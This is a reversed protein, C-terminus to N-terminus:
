GLRDQLAQRAVERDDFHIKTTGLIQYDEHGKGAIVVTDGSNAERIAAEIAQRRDGEVITPVSQPDFGAVIDTLIGQPDETRPNDSTVIVQDSWEAALRGMQPRKTRDRDGGCGFVCILRGQVTPRVARLLNELGDPTHAYDVIVTLDAGAVQVMEMRGPVGPFGPLLDQIVQPEIGVQLVAGVAAMLNALNFAGAMPIQVWIEGKPTHLQAQIRDSGLEVAEPWLDAPAEADFSLSYSWPSLEAGEARLQQCLRRGGPDDQNIIGRGQLYEPSFLTAKAQWYDEMTPHFDLHDQTLNTWVAVAFQCGWVRQQALAHSSVEMVVQDCGAGRIQDLTRQLDVAFPTTHHAMIQTQGPWRSYLTGILGTSRGAGNLLYEVLHTTTTKGNTGTVGIMSLDRGPFGYFATVLQACAKSVQDMPLCIVPDVEASVETQQGAAESIVAAAAGAALAQRWFSGGDVQEGPLGIFLDGPQIQRSDTSIGSVRGQAQAVPPLPLRAQEFVETLTLSRVGLIESPRM